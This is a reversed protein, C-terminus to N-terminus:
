NMWKTQLFTATLRHLGYMDAQRTEILSRDLLDRLAQRLTSGALQTIGELQAVDAGSEAILLMGKLLMQANPDLTEWTRLYVREYMQRTSGSPDDAVDRLVDDLALTHLAGCVLKLALPSGGVTAYIRQREASNLGLLRTNNSHEALHDILNLADANALEHLTLWHATTDDPQARTTLVIRTPDTYRPLQSLLHAAVHPEELNDIIILHPHTLLSRQIHAARAPPPLRTAAIHPLASLKQLLQLHASDASQSRGHMTPAEYRLWVVHEFQFHRLVHRTAYDVAATKGIGGLGAVATIPNRDPQLLQALLDAIVDDCGFLQDYGAPELATELLRAELNRRENERAAIEGALQAIAQKQRRYLTEKSFHQTRTIQQPTIQEKYRQHLLDASERGVQELASEILALAAAHPEQQATALLRLHALPHRDFKPTHWARLTKHLPDTLDDATFVNV